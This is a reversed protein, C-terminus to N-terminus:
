KARSSDSCELLSIEALMDESQTTVRVTGVGPALWRTIRRQPGRVAHLDCGVRVADDHSAELIKMTGMAEIACEQRGSALEMVWTRGVEFPFPFGVAPPVELSDTMLLGDATLRTYETESSAGPIGSYDVIVRRFVEGEIMQEGRVRAVAAGELAEGFLPTFKIAYDCRPLDPFYM